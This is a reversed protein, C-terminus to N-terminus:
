PSSRSVLRFTMATKSAQTHNHPRLLYKNPESPRSSWLLPHPRRHSAIHPPHCRRLFLPIWSSEQSSFLSIVHILM